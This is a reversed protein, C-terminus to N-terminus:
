KWDEVDDSFAKHKGKHGEGRICQRGDKNEDDCRDVFKSIKRGCVCCYNDDETIYDNDCKDCKYFITYLEELGDEIAITTKNKM